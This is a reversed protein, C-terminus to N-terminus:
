RAQRTILQTTNTGAMAARGAIRGFVLARMVAVANPASGHFHGTIEGAAYLGPIPGGAGLVEASDNTAIGGFTYAHAGDYALATSALPVPFPPATELSDARATPTAALLGMVAAAVFVPALILWNSAM